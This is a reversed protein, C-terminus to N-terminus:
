VPCSTAWRRSAAIRAAPTARDRARVPKSAASQAGRGAPREVDAGGAGAAPAPAPAPGPQRQEAADHHRRVQVADVPRKALALMDGAVRGNDTLLPTKMTVHLGHALLREIGALTRTFSGPQDTVADHVEATPGYVSVSLELVGAAALHAAIEDTIMTANTLVKVAFGRAVAADVIELFDRRTCVEGGTLSLFLTGAGALQDLLRCIEDFSLEGHDEHDPLCCHKCPLNCRHTIEFIVEIPIHREAARASVRELM